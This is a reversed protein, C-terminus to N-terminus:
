GYIDAFRWSWHYPPMRGFLRESTQACSRTTALAIWLERSGLVQRGAQTPLGAPPPSDMVRATSSSVDIYPTYKFHTPTMRYWVYM